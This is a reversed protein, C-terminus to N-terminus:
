FPDELYIIPPHPSSEDMEPYSCTAPETSMTIFRWTGYFAPFKKVLLPVYLKELLTRRWPFWTMWSIVCLVMNIWGGYQVTFDSNESALLIIYESLIDSACGAYAHFMYGIM